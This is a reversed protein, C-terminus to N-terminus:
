VVKEAIFVVFGSEAWLGAVPAELHNVEGPRQFLTSVISEGRFGAQLTLGAVERSTFFKAQKYIPNEETKLQQYYKGWPSDKLIVGLALKGGPKLIRHAEKLVDLPSDFFGLTTILFVTGFSSEEFIKEEGRGQITNIGLNKAMKALSISPEIGTKIGLAQAFRGSGVGIELWPEPLFSILDQFAKLETEFILKGENDFWNDYSSALTDFISDNNM